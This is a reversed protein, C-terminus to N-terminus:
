EILIWIHSGHIAITFVITEDLIGISYEERSISSAPLSLLCGQVQNNIYKIRKKMMFIM